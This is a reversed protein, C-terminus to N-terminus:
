RSPMGGVWVPSSWAISDNAQEVKFYYYDGQDANEADTMNFSIDRQGGTIVRRITVSDDPYDAQPINRSMMGDVIESLALEASAAPITAHARYFPPASGTESAEELNITISADASVDRLNLRISSTDGRTHTAFAIMSGNQEFRQTTPNYFDQPIASMLAAGNIEIEGRWHRWGRPADGNYFPTADSAFSLLLEQEGGANDELLYEEQWIVEDNKFLTITRIPETSIVRGSIARSESFAARQGMATGNVDFKLIPRDGTTAYTRKAKMGDFIADRSRLPAMVAGLGGRQALSDRTPASYGPRSLHDDSAAVVGVEHGHSLYDQMFWQFSGHDSMVEILPELQPDSQRADGPNHAHPIVVIGAPDFREHLEAYLSSLVPFQLGSVPVQEGVDRFLVNHHGGFRAHRTWEWGLFPIFKGPDDYEATANRIIEWEGADLWIDHESHTVYDLRADDRAFRMFQDVTGIGESYGSHGHTDGWYIRFEPNEEVLIPNGVGSVTGDLSRISIWHPGTNALSLEVINIADNGAPTMAVVEDNILVEFAPIAGTARNSYQDEARVSLEFSEGPAVVSPGFGHVSTTVGGSTVLPMIPLSRWEESGDLDVYLPLPARVSEFTPMRLGPGGQRQDGYTITVSSGRDLNGAVLRFVIAPQPGRFGGHPGSAMITEREFVADDDTTEITIFGPGTPDETQFEGFNAAFHRAVWFGGGTQVTRTGVRWTQSVSQMSGVVFPGLDDSSLLGLAGEEDRLTFERVFRDVNRSQNRAANGTPPLTAQLRVRPADVGVEGGALAYADIWDALLEAREAITAESTAESAVSQKLQEVRARMEADIYDDNNQTVPENEASCGVLFLLLFLKLPPLLALRAKVPAKITAHLTMKLEIRPFSTFM